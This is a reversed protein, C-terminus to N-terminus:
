DMLLWPSIRRKVNRIRHTRHLIYYDKHCVERLILDLMASRDEDVRFYENELVLCRSKYVMYFPDHDGADYERHLMMEYSDLYDYIALAYVAFALKKYGEDIPDFRPYEGPVAHYTVPYQPIAERAAKQTEFGEIMLTLLHKEFKESGIPRAYYPNFM